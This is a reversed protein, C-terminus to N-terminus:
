WEEICFDYWNAYGHKEINAENKAELEKQADGDGLYGATIQLDAPIPIFTELFKGAPLAQAAKAIMAPDEHTLTISNSCWNPM